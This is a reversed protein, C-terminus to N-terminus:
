TIMLMHMHVYLSYCVALETSQRSIQPQFTCEAVEPSGTSITSETSLREYVSQTPTSSRYSIAASTSVLRPQFTIESSEVEEKARRLLEMRAKKQEDYKYLREAPDKPALEGEGLSKRIRSASLSRTNSPLQPSFTCEELGNKKQDHEAKLREHKEKLEFSKQFLRDAIDGGSRSVELAKRTIAPQFPPDQVAVPRQNGSGTQTHLKAVLNQPSPSRKGRSSSRAVLTPQFSNQDAPSPKVENQRKKADKYLKEFRNTSENSTPLSKKYEYLAPKFTLQSDEEIRRLEIRKEILSRYHTHQSGNTPSGEGYYEGTLVSAEDAPSQGLEENIEPQSAM